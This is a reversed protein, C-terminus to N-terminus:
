RHPGAGLLGLTLAPISVPKDSDTVQKVLFSDLGFLRAGARLADDQSNFVGILKQGKVVVFRDRHSSLWEDRHAKYYALETELM